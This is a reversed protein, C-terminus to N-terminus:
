DTDCQLGALFASDQERQQELPLLQARQKTMLGWAPAMETLGDEITVDARDLLAPTFDMDLAEAVDFNLAVALYDHQQVGTSAIDLAGDLHGLLMSAAQRGQEVYLFPGATMAAGVYVSMLSAHYVPKGHEYASDVIYSIAQGLSLDYPVLFADVGKGLTGEVAVAVDPLSLIPAAEVEIGLRQAIETIRQAGHSGSADSPNYVVGLSALEPHQLLVLSLIDEYDILGEVGTVHAPKDCASAVIGAEAPNFVDAFILAPPADLLLTQNVAMQTLPTSFTILADPEQDLAQDILRAANNFDFDADGWFISIRENELDERQRLKAKEDADIWGYLELHNLIAGEMWYVTPYFGFRLIGVTPKDDAQALTAPALLLALTLLAYRLLATMMPALTM